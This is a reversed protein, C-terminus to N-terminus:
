ASKKKASGLAFREIALAVGDRDNAATVHPVAERVEPLANGMAVGIKAWRMMPVDNRSDGIAMVSEASIQFDACLRALATKKSAERNLVAVEHFDFWSENRFNLPLDGFRELMRRVAEDGLFRIFTPAETLIERFSDAVRWNPGRMDDMYIPAHALRYFMEEVYVAIALRESEAYEIMAKAHELPVPIHVLRRNAGFDKTLAGHCCIVPLNLGLDKSIAIPTDVGRGTVLVVRIGAALAARIAARNRPSVSEDPSLLTGDLDLAILDIPTPM